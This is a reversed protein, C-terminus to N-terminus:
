EIGYGRRYLEVLAAEPIEVPSQVNTRKGHRGLVDQFDDWKLPHAFRETDDFRLAMIQGQPDGKATVLVDKWAYVGLRRFERYVDTAPGTVVGSLRSCARIRKTRPDKKDQSIYWILRGFSRSPGNRASRYYVSEPNLALDTDAGFLTGLALGSDFLDTAWCPRIPVIFSPIDCGLIKAPWLIHEVEWAAVPESRISPKALICAAQELGECSLKAESLTSRIAQAIRDPTAVLRFSMKAWAPGMQVFGSDRLSNAWAPDARTEEFIVVMTSTQCAHEVIGALLTRFLTNAMRTRRVAPSLRFLPIRLAHDSIRELVYLAMPSAQGHSRSADAILFCNYKEPDSFYTNLRQGLRHKKEDGKPDQFTSALGETPRSLRAKGIRTGALREQQYAPENRLEEFRGILESPRVVSLGYKSYFTDAHGLLGEDRTVFLAAKSAIARAVQRVDAEDRANRPKGVLNRVDVEVAQFDDTACELFEFKRAARLREARRTPDEQRHIENLLEDTVCLRILPQLWDAVLGQSEEAGNRTPDDLDFFVNADIVVDVREDDSPRLFGLLTAHPNSMWFETLAGGDRGRGPKEGLAVFGLKPWSSWAPFDRRCHLGIGVYDKFQIRLSEILRRALGQGRHAEEVCLHTLRIKRRETKYYLLYGCCVGDKLAVIIEKSRARDLFAGNPYFGLQDSNSRWLRRVDEM